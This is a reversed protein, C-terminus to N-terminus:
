GPILGVDRSDRDNAPSNRIQTVLSAWTQFLIHDEKWFIYFIFIFM